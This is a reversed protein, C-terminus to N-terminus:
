AINDGSKERQGEYYVWADLKGGLFAADVIGFIAIKLAALYYTIGCKSEDLQPCAGNQGFDCHIVRHSDAHSKNAKLEDEAEKIKQNCLQRQDTAQQM